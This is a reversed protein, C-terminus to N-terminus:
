PMVLKYCPAERIYGVPTLQAGAAKAEAMINQMSESDIVLYQPDGKDKIWGYMRKRLEPSSFPIKFAPHATYYIISSSYMDAWIWASPRLLEPPVDLTIVTQEYPEFIKWLTDTLSSFNTVAVLIAILATPIATFHGILRHAVSNGATERWREEIALAILAFLLSVGLMGPILYYPTRIPHTLFYAVTIVFLVFPAVVLGGHIKLWSKWGFSSKRSTAWIVAVLLLLGLFLGIVYYGVSRSLDNYYYLSNKYIVGLDQRNDVDAYTVGFFKGTIIKNHLILPLVGNLTVGVLYWVGLRIKGPLFILLIAPLILVSAIRAQIVLGFLIGSCLALLASALRSRTNVSFWTLLIGLFLPFITVNVSFSSSQIWEYPSLFATVAGAVMLGSLPLGKLMCGLVLLIGIVSMFIISLRDIDTVASAKPFFAMVWGTGPPYQCGVQDSGPFYHHAHATVVENWSQVPVKSEKFKAILWRTQDDHIFFDPATGSVRADRIADAMRSYGFPDCGKIMRDSQRDNEYNGFAAVIIVVVAILACISNSLTM